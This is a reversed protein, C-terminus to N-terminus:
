WVSEALHMLSRTDACRWCANRQAISLTWERSHAPSFSSARQPLALMRCRRSGALTEAGDQWPEAKRKWFAAGDTAKCHLDQERKNVGNWDWVRQRQCSSNKQEMRTRHRCPLWHQGWRLVEQVKAVVSRSGDQIRPLSVFTIKKWCRLIFINIKRTFFVM